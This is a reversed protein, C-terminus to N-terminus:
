NGEQTVPLVKLALAHVQTIVDRAEAEDMDDIWELKAGLLAMELVDGVDVMTASTPAHDRMHVQARDLAASAAAAEYALRTRNSM